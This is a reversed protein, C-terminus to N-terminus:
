APAGPTPRLIAPYEEGAVIEGLYPVTLHGDGAIMMLAPLSDNALENAIWEFLKHDAESPNCRHGQPHSHWEGIYHLQGATAKTIREVAEVLGDTGRMYSTPYERSDRPSPVTDVVYVIRRQLDYSGLLVGGTENPLKEARLEGIRRLLAVDTILQWDGLSCRQAPVPTIDIATVGLTEPDVRWVRAQALPTSALHSLALSSVGAHLSVLAQPLPVSVDRCSRGYRVLSQSASLAGDLELRCAVARYYQMELVDLPITRAEDEALLTLDTGSPNLFLSIRRANTTVDHTLSRAVTVSASIDVIWNAGMLAVGVADANSGPQLVDAVFSNHVPEDDTLGNGIIALCGAKHFGVADAQLAHRALNHPLLLDGDIVTWKGFASRAANLMIQSGLAGGGIAVIRRDDAKQYGNQRALDARDQFFFPYGLAIPIDHGDHKPDATLLVGPTGNTLQWADISAGVQGVTSATFFVWTELDEVQGEPTRRKPVLIVLVFQAKLMQRAESCGRLLTRLSTLLDDGGEALIAHLDAITNPSRRIAGHVRPKLKVRAAYAKPKNGMNSNGGTESPAAILVPRGHHDPYRELVLPTADTGPHGAPPTDLERISRPLIIFGAAGVLLPEMPQDEAHLEGRATLRLWERILAVFRSPTWQTRVDRFPVDYLCISRPYEFGRLNTHPVDAPFDERLALVDPPGDADVEPEFKVAIRETARIDHVPYQVLDVDVDLVVLDAKQSRKCEVLSAYLVRGTALRDALAQADPHALESPPCSSFQSLDLRIPEVISAQTPEGGVESPSGEGPEPIPSTM